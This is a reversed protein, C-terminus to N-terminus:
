ICFWVALCEIVRYIRHLWDIICAIVSIVKAAKSNRLSQIMQKVKDAKKQCWKYLKRFTKNNRETISVGTRDSTESPIVHDSIGNGDMMVSDGAGRERPDADHTVAGTATGDGSTSDM